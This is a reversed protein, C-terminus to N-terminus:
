FPLGVNEWSTRKRIPIFSLKITVVFVVITVLCPISYSIVVVAVVADVADACLSDSTKPFHMSYVEEQKDLQKNAEM